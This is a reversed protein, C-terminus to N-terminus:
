QGALVGRQRLGDGAAAFVFRLDDFTIRQFLALAGQEVETVGEAM